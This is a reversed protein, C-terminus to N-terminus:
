PPNTEDRRTVLLQPMLLVLRDVRSIAFVQTGNRLYVGYYCVRVPTRRAEDVCGVCMVCKLYLPGIM